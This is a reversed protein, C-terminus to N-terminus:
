SEDRDQEVPESMAAVLDLMDRQTDKELAALKELARISSNTLWGFPKLGAHFRDANAAMYGWLLDAAAQLRIVNARLLNIPGGEELEKQVQSEVLALSEPIPQSNKVRDLYSYAGHRLSNLSQGTARDRDDSYAEVAEDIRM